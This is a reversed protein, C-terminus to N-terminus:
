LGYLTALQDVAKTIHHNQGIRRYVEPSGFKYDGAPNHLYQSYTTAYGDIDGDGTSFHPKSYEAHAVIKQCHAGYQDYGYKNAVQGRFIWFDDNGTYRISATVSPFRTALRTYSPHQIGYDSYVVKRLLEGGMHLQQWLAWEYRKQSCAGLPINSLDVPFSGGALIVSRFYQLSNLNNILGKALIVDNGNLHDDESYEDALDIVVDIKDLPLSLRAIYSAILQPNALDIRNLRLCVEGQVLSDIAALYKVSRTPSTVPVVRVGAARLQHVANEIPFKDAANIYNEDIWLGDLLIYSIGACSTVIKKDLGTLVENYTKEPEDTDPDLPVPEIEFLPLIKGKVAANLQTVATLEARKLKLIPVYSVKSM